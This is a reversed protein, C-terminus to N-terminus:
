TMQPMVSMSVLLRGTGYTVVPRRPLRPDVLEPDFLLGVRAGIVRQGRLSAPQRHDLDVRRRLQDTGVPRHRQDVDEVAPRLQDGVKV